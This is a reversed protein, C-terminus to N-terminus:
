DVKVCVYRVEKKSDAVLRTTSRGADMCHQETQFGPVNTLTVSDGKAFMGAYIYLILTWM